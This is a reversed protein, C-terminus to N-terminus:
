WTADMTLSRYFHQYATHSYSFHRGYHKHCMIRSFISFRHHRTITFLIGGGVILPPTTPIGALTFNKKRM